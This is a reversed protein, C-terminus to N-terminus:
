PSLEYVVGATTGPPSENTGGFVTTGFLNGSSDGVLGAGPEAGDTCNAQACFQYIPAASGNSYDFITGRGYNGGYQATGFVNGAADIMLKTNDPNEGEECFPWLVNEQSNVGDPVLDFIVGWGCGGGYTTTGLLSGDAALSLANQMPQEGDNCFELQCFDHLVTENFARRRPSL